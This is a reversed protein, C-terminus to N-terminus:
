DGEKVKKCYGDLVKQELMSEMLDKARAAGRATERRVAEAMRRGVARGEVSRCDDHFGACDCIVAANEVLM